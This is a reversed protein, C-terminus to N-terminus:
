KLQELIRVAKGNRPNLELSKEYNKKALEKQGNKWYAEGLCYYANSSQPFEEVMFCFLEIAKEINNNEILAYGAGVLHREGINYKVPSDNPSTLAKYFAIAGDEGAVGNQEAKEILIVTARTAKYQLAAFTEYSFLSSILYSHKGKKLEEHINLKAM